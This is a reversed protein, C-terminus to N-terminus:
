ALMSVPPLLLGIPYGNKLICCTSARVAEKKKKNSYSKYQLVLRSFPAMKGVLAKFVTQTEARACLASREGAGAFAVGIDPLM